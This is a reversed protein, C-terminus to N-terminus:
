SRDKKRFGEVRNEKITKLYLDSLARCSEYHNVGETKYCEDLKERIIRAEMVKVWDDRIKQNRAAYIAKHDKPDVQDLTPVREFQQHEPYEWNASAM